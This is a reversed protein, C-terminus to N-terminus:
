DSDSGTAREIKKTLADQFEKSRIDEPSHQDAPTPNSKTARPKKAASSPRRPRKPKEKKGDDDVVSEAPLEAEDSPEPPNWLRRYYDSSIDSFSCLARWDKKVFAEIRSHLTVMAPSTRYVHDVMAMTVQSAEARLAFSQVERRLRCLYRPFGATRRWIFGALTEDLPDDSFPVYDEDPLDLLTPSWLGPIWDKTWVASSPDMEPELHFWGGESFRDVDQSFSKLNTFALPNGVLVTPVGWNLLRLFFTLFENGFPGQSLNKEQAEEIVLLGCRHIALLHLFVVLLKEITWRPGKYRSAYDTGLVRDIEVLGSMLLGGRHGDSPMHIKLWVLQKLSKWGCEEREEHEIVQPLLSLYRDLAQSKGTGTGGEIVMGGAFAPWWELDKLNQGKLVGAEYIFRREKSQRPDRQALGDFLLSQLAIAIAVTQNTPIFIKKYEGVLKRRDLYNIGVVHEQQISRRRLACALELATQHTPLAALLPNSNMRELALQFPNSAQKSM